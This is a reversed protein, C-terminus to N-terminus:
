APMLCDHVHQLLTDATIPKPLMDCAGFAQAFKLLEMNRTRGGGSRMNVVVFATM